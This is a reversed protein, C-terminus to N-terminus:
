VLAILLNIIYSCNIKIIDYKIREYFSNRNNTFLGYQYM